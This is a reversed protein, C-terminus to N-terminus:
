KPRKRKDKEDKRKINWPVMFARTRRTVKPDDLRRVGCAIDVMEDPSSIYGVIWHAPDRRDVVRWTNPWYDFCDNVRWRHCFRKGDMQREQILERLRRQRNKKRDRHTRRRM